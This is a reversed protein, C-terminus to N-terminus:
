GMFHKNHWHSSRFWIGSVWLFNQTHHCLGIKAQSTSVLLDGHNAPWSPKYNSLELNMSLGQRLIHHLVSSSVATSRQHVCMFLHPFTPLSLCCVSVPLCECLSVPLPIVYPSFCKFTNNSTCRTKCYSRSTLWFICEMESANPSWKKIWQTRFIPLKDLRQFM